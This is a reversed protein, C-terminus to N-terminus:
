RLLCECRERRTVSGAGRGEGACTDACFRSSEIMASHADLQGNPLLSPFVDTIMTPWADSAAERM